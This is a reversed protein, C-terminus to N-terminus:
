IGYFDNIQYLRAFLNGKIFNSKRVNLINKNNLQVDVQRFSRMVSFNFTHIKDYYHAVVIQIPITIHNQTCDM